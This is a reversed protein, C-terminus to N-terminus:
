FPEGQEVPLDKGKILVRWSGTDLNDVPYGPNHMIRALTVELKIIRSARSKSAETVSSPHILFTTAINSNKGSLLPHDKM